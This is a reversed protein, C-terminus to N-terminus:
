ILQEGRSKLDELFFLNLFSKIMHEHKRNQVLSLAGVCMTSLFNDQGIDNLFAFNVINPTARFPVEEEPVCKLLKQKSMYRPRMGRRLFTGKDMQIYGQSAGWARSSVCYSLLSSVAMQMTIKKRSAFYNASAGGHYDLLASSLAHEPNAGCGEYISRLSISDRSAPRMHMHKNLAVSETLEICMKRQMAAASSSFIFNAIGYLQSMRDETFSAGRLSRELWFHYTRGNDGVFGLKIRGKYFMVGRAVRWLRVRSEDIGFGCQGPIELVRFKINSLVKSWGSLDSGCHEEYWQRDHEDIWTLWDALM